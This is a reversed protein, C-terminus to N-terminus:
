TDFCLRADSPAQTLGPRFIPATLRPGRKLVSLVSRTSGIATIHQIFELM